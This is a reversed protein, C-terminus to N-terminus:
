AGTVGVFHSKRLDPFRQKPKAREANHIVEDKEWSFGQLEEKLCGQSDPVQWVLFAPKEPM